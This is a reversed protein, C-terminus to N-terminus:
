NLKTIKLNRKQGNQLKLEGVFQGTPLPTNDFLYLFVEQKILSLGNPLIKSGTADYVYLEPQKDQLSPLYVSVYDSSPNSYWFDLNSSGNTEIGSLTVVSSIAKYLNLKGWGWQNSGAASITGTFNDVTTNNLLANRVQTYTLTPNAELLLAISGTVLPTAFSTYEVGIWYWTNSGVTFATSDVTLFSYSDGPRTDTAFLNSPAVVTGPSSIDPKTRGDLTPGQSSFPSIKGSDASFYKDYGAISRYKEQGV